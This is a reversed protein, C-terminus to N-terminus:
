TLRATLLTSKLNEGAFEGVTRGYRAAAQIRNIATVQWGHDRFWRGPDPRKDDLRLTSLNLGLRRGVDQYAPHHLENHFNPESQDTAFTSGAASLRHVHAFLAEEATGPLYLLLGEALWATPRQPDFNARLLAEPWDTRLDVPVIHRACGALAGQEALVSDKFELVKPQDVEFLEVRGPWPLRFARTDLGAALLVVQRIGATSADLFYEDFFRSRVGVHDALATWFSAWEKDPASRNEFDEITAWSTPMPVPTGSRTVFNEAYPDDILADDRKSELARTAAVALATIGVGSVIDWDDHEDM